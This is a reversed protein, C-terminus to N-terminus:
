QDSAAPSPRHPSRRTKSDEKKRESRSHCLLIDTDANQTPAHIGCPPPIEAPIPPPDASRTPPAPHRPRPEGFPSSLPVRGEPVPPGPIVTTETSPVSSEGTTGETSITRSAAVSDDGRPEPRGELVGAILGYGDAFPSRDV